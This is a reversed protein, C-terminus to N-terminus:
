GKMKYLYKIYGKFASYYSEHKIYLIINKCLRKVIKSIEPHHCHNVTPFLHHEIQYNLGGSFYYAITSNLSFNTSTQIQHKYWDENYTDVIGDHLHTLQSNIM